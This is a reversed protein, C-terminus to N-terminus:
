LRARRFHQRQAPRFNGNGNRDDDHDMRGAPLPGYPLQVTLIIGYRFGSEFSPHHNWAVSQRLAEGADHSRVGSIKL